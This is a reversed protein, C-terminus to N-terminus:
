VIAGTPPATQLQVNYGRAALARQIDAVTPGIDTSLPLNFGSVIGLAKGSAKHLVPGGSDGFVAWTDATYTQPGDGLLVGQKARTPETLSFAVGYGYLALLDGASTEQPAAVGTPGGWHQVAARVVGVKAPDVRLLAFDPSGLDLVATGWEGHGPTSVRSGVRGICHGATGIYTNAGDRFVFNLTCGGEDTEVETGPQLFTNAEPEVAAGPGPALLLALAAVSLLAPARM